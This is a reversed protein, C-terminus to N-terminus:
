SGTDIICLSLPFYIGPVLGTLQTKKKNNKLTRASGFISDFIQQKFYTLIVRLKDM